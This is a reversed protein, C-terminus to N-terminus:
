QQEAADLSPAKTRSGWPKDCGNRCPGVKADGCHRCILSEAAVVGSGKGNTRYRAYYAKKQAEITASLPLGRLVEPIFFRDPYM